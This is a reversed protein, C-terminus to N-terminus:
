NALLFNARVSPKPQLFMRGSTAGQLSALRGSTQEEQQEPVSYQRPGWEAKIIEVLDDSDHGKDATGAVTLIGDVLGAGQIM